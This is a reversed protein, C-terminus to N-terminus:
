VVWLPANTSNISSRGRIIINPSSGPSGTSPLVQVGTVKGQLMTAVEPVTVDALQGADIEVVSSTITEKKQTGYAVVVVEELESTYMVLSVNVTSRNGIAVERTQYGLYSVVLISETSLELEYNGDFDTVTGNSTGKEIVNAGPIPMGTEGDSVFGKVITRQATAFGASLLLLLLFLGKIMLKKMKSM